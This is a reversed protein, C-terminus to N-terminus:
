FIAVPTHWGIGLCRSILSRRARCIMRFSVCCYPVQPLDKNKRKSVKLQVEIAIAHAQLLESAGIQGAMLSRAHSLAGVTIPGLKLGLESLPYLRTMLKFAICIMLPIPM